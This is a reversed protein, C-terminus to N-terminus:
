FVHLQSICSHESFDTDGKSNGKKPRIGTGGLSVWGGPDVVKMLWCIADARESGATVIM